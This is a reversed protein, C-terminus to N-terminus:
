RVKETHIVSGTREGYFRGVISSQKDSSVMKEGILEHCLQFEKEM